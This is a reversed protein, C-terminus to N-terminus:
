VNRQGLARQCALLRNPKSRLTPAFTFTGIRTRQEVPFPAVGVGNQSMDVPSSLRMM